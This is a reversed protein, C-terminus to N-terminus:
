IEIRSERVPHLDPRLFTIATENAAIVATSHRGQPIDAFDQMARAAADGGVGIEIEQVPIIAVQIVVLPIDSRTDHFAGVFEADFPAIAPLKEPAHAPEIVMGHAVHVKAFQAILGFVDSFQIERWEIQPNGLVEIKEALGAFHAEAIM